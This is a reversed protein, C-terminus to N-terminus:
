TWGKPIPTVRLILLEGTIHSDYTRAHVIVISDRTPNDLRSFLSKRIFRVASERKAQSWADNPGHPDDIVLRNCGRGLSGGVWCSFMAGNSISTYEQKLNMDSALQVEPWLTQCWPALLLNRRRVSDRIALDMSHSCFIWRNTAGNRSWEWAPWLVSVPTSKGHRPSVNVILRRIRGVSVAMLHECMASWYKARSFPTQVIFQWTEACFGELDNSLLTV